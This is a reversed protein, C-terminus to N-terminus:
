HGRQLQWPSSTKACESKYADIYGSACMGRAYGAVCLCAYIATSTAQSASKSEVCTAGHVCPHSACEDVDVACNVGSYGAVCTCTYAHVDISTQKSSDACTASNKCPQSACEDVDVNCTGGQKVSCLSAYQSIYSYACTGNAYGASCKCSFANLAVTEDVSSERCIADNKCPSSACENADVDCTGGVVSCQAKYQSMYSYDCMGNVYGAVCKCSYLGPAPQLCTAGNRCPSSACENVNVSCTGGEAVSCQAAYLSMYAYDCLGDAFGSTCLCRYHGAKVARETASEMCKGGNQCPTSICENVDTNCTGGTKVACKVAYQQLSKYSCIGNTYGVACTCSFKDVAVKGDTSSDSCRAGNVCPKSLCENADEDCRGGEKVNCELTFPLIYDYACNGNVYGAICCSFANAAVSASKSSEVCTAGNQCPNSDCENIDLDCNGGVAVHCQTKYSELYSYKCMGNAFGAICSCSYKGVPVSVDTSSDKCLAGNKCPSSACENVDLDCTGGVQVVCEKAYQQLYTYSCIGNAYGSICACSFADAVISSQVSSEKCTAGHVCPQSVCEDIDVNCRGGQRVTCTDAHQQKYAYNCLGNVYGAKCWCVFANVPTSLDTSSERCLAGNMCPSSSCEDVDVDCNGGSTVKCQSSYNSLFSYKCLGNAYGAACACTYTDYAISESAVNSDICTAGNSCPNSKCEDVDLDCNGGHQVLCLRRYEFTFNYACMGNAFGAQCACSYANAAVPQTETGSSNSDSCKAGMKCPNSVCENIDKDCRANETVNCWSVYASIPTYSCIGNAFGPVCSCSFVGARVGTGM